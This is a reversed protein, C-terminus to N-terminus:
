SAKQRFRKKQDKNLGSPYITSVLYEIIENLNEIKIIKSM